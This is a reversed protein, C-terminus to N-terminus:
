TMWRTCRWAQCRELHGSQYGRIAGVVKPSPEKAATRLSRPLFGRSPAWRPLSLLKAAHGSPVLRRRCRHAVTRPSAIQRLTCRRTASRQARAGLRTPTSRSPLRSVERFCRGLQRYIPLSSRGRRPRGHLRHLDHHWTPRLQGSPRCIRPTRPRKSTDGAVPIM